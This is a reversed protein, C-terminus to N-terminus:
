AASYINVLYNKTLEKIIFLNNDLVGLKKAYDFIIKEEKGKGIILFRIDSNLKKM